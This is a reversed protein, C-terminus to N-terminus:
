PRYCCVAIWLSLTVMSALTSISILWAVAPGDGKMRVALIYASSATPLAGFIVVVEYHLGGLGFTHALALAIAPMLLLKVATIYAGAALRVQAGRLKLAAGVALLGTALAADSLRTLFQGVPQALELGLLNFVLGSCTALILPNRILERWVSGEGHRALMGVAAMNALPVALGLLMGLAAIGPAGHLKGVVALGIYSNFRFACQFYSAFVRPAEAFWLRAVLGLAMGAGLTALGALLFSGMAAFEIHTRAIASFLLAPFLIYYILKDLGSWFTDGLHMVRRLGLGLLILAFDPFLILASSM